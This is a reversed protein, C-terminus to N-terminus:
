RTGRVLLTRDITETERLYLVPARFVIMDAHSRQGTVESPLRRHHARRETANDPLCTVPKPQLNAQCLFYASRM